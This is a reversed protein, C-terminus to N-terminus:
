KRKVWLIPAGWRLRQDYLPEIIPNYSVLDVLGPARGKRVRKVFSEGGETVVVCDRDYLEELAYTRAGHPLFLLLDGPRYAPQMSEGRVIVAAYGESPSPLEAEDIAHVANGEPLIIEERAGAYGFVPITVNPPAALEPFVLQVPSIGLHPALAEAWKRTMTREGKELRAVQQPSTGAKEGLQELTLKREKRLRRLLEGSSNERPPMGNIIAANGARLLALRTIKEGRMKCKEGIHNFM